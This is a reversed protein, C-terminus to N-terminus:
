ILKSYDKYPLNLLEALEQAILMLDEHNGAVTCLRIQPHRYSFLYIDGSMPIEGGESPHNEHHDAYLFEYEQVSIAKSQSLLVYANRIEKHLTQQEHDFVYRSHPWLQQIRPRQWEYAMWLLGVIGVTLMMGNRGILPGLFERLLFGLPLLSIILLLLLLLAAWNSLTQTAKTRCIRVEPIVTKTM